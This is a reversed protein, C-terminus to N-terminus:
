SDRHWCITLWSGVQILDFPEESFGAFYAEETELRLEEGIEVETYFCTFGDHLNTECVCGMENVTLEVTNGAQIVQPATVKQTTGDVPCQNTTTM